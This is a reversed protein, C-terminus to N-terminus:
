LGLRFLSKLICLPLHKPMKGKGKIREEEEQFVFVIRLPVVVMSFDQIFFVTYSYFSGLDVMFSSFYEELILCEVELNGMVNSFYVGQRNLCLYKVSFLKRSRM